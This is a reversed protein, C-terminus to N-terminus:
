LSMETLSPDSPSVEKFGAELSKPHNEKMDADHEWNREPSHAYCAAPTAHTVRATTVM